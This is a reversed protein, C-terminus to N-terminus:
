RDRGSSVTSPTARAQMAWNGSTRAWSCTQDSIRVMGLQGANKGINFAIRADNKVRHKVAVNAAFEFFSASAKLHGVAMNKIIGDGHHGSIQPLLRAPAGPGQMFHVLFIEAPDLRNIVRKGM